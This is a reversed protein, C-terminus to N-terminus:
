GKQWMRRMAILGLIPGPLLLWAVHATATSWLSTGLEISLITIAFGISNMLALAGGVRDAPCAKAALTSFQPSDAVVFFGWVLLLSLKFSYPLAQVWPYILCLLASGGLAIIAIKGSGWRRSLLGGTICGISGAAFVGFATLHVRQDNAEYGWQIILLPVLAWFAYLEWMHGFYGFAAARFGPLRFAQLVGGWKLPRKNGHHPGDGLWWVIAAAITAMASATYLVDQWNLAVGIGRIFHPLGTGLALMGVLWGLAQGAKDPAWSVVLKMGIPYVGALTVGTIFRFVLAGTLNGDVLVFAANALAGLIACVAFVRSASFRDALGSLALFLTGTIFGLQVASTLHGLESATIGWASHLADAIANVSFWLSGGLLEAVVIIAIAYRSWRIPSAPPTSPTTNSRDM